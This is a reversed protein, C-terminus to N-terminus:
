KAEIALIETFTGQAVEIKIKPFVSEEKSDDDTVFSETISTVSFGDTVKQSPREVPHEDIFLQDGHNVYIQTKISKDKTIFQGGTVDGAKQNTTIVIPLSEFLATYPLGVAAIYYYQFHENDFSIVKTTPNYKVNISSQQFNYKDKTRISSLTSGDYTLTYNELNLQLHVPKGSELRTYLYDPLTINKISKYSNSLDINGKTSFDQPKNSIHKFELNGSSDTGQYILTLFEDEGESYPISITDDRNINLSGTYAVPTSDRTIASFTVISDNSSEFELDYELTGLEEKRIFADCFTYKELETDKALNISPFDTSKYKTDLLERLKIKCLYSFSGDECVAYLSRDTLSTNLTTISNIKFESEIQFAAFVQQKQSTTYTRDLFAEEDVTVFFLKGNNKLVVFYSSSGDQIVAIQKVESDDLLHSSKSLYDLTRINNSYVSYASAKVKNSGIENWHVVNAINAPKVSVAGFNSVAVNTIKSPTIFSGQSGDGNLRYVNNVTGVILDNNENALFTIIDNSDGQSVLPFFTPNNDGQGVTDITFTQYTESPYSQDTNGVRRSSYVYNAANLMGAFWLKNQAFVACSPYNGSPLKDVTSFPYNVWSDFRNTQPNTLSSEFRFYNGSYRSIARPYFQPHFLYVKDGKQATWINQLNDNESYPTDVWYDFEMTYEETSASTSIVDAGLETELNATTSTVDVLKFNSYGSGTNIRVIQNEFFKGYRPLTINDQVTSKNYVIKLDSNVEVRPYFGFFSSTNAAAPLLPPTDTGSLRLRFSTSNVPLAEFEKNNINQFTTEQSLYTNKNGSSYPLYLDRVIVKQRNQLSHAQTTTYVPDITANSISSIEPSYNFLPSGDFNFVRMKQNEFEFLFNNNLNFKFDRLESKPNCKTLFKFGERPVLTGKSKVILNSCRSAGRFYEESDYKSAYSDSIEGIFNKIIAM